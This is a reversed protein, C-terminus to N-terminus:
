LLRTGRADRVAGAISDGLMSQELRNERWRCLAVARCSSRCYLSIMVAAVGLGLLGQDRRLPTGRASRSRACFTATM